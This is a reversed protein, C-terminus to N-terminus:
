FRPCGVRKGGCNKSTIAADIKAVYPVVSQITETALKKRYQKKMKKLADIQPKFMTAMQPPMQRLKSAIMKESTELKLYGYAMMVGAFSKVFGNFDGYGNGVAFKKLKAVMSKNALLAEIGSSAASGKKMNRLKKKEKKFTAFYTPLVKVCKAVQEKTLKIKGKPLVPAPPMAFVTASFLVFMGAAIWCARGSSNMRM